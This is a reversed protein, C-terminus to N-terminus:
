EKKNNQEENFQDEYASVCSIFDDIGEETVNSVQFIQKAGANELYKHAKDIQHEEAIDCKTIVGITPKPFMTAFNPPFMSQDDTASQLLVILDSQMSTVMLPGRFMRRELYEGPTDIMNFDSNVVQITQTKKYRLDEHNIRQCLSTKGVAIRGILM